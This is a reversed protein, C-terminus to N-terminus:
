ISGFSSPATTTYDVSNHHANSTGLQYFHTASDYSYVSTMSSSPYILSKHEELDVKQQQTNYENNQNETDFEMIGFTSFNPVCWNVISSNYQKVIGVFNELRQILDSFENM